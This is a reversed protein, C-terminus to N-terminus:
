DTALGACITGADDMDFTEGRKSVDERVREQFFTRTDDAATSGITNSEGNAMRTIRFFGCSAFGSYHTGATTKANM